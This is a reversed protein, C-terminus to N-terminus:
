FDTKNIDDALSEEDDTSRDPSKRNRTHTHTHRHTHTHTDKAKQSLGEAGQDSAPMCVNRM